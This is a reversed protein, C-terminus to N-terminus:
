ENERALKRDEAFIVDTNRQASVWKNCISFGSRLADAVERRSIGSTLAVRMAEKHFEDM